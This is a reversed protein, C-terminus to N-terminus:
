TKSGFSRIELQEGLNPESLRFPPTIGGSKSTNISKTPKWEKFEKPNFEEFEFTSYPNKEGKLEEYAKSHAQYLHEAKVSYYGVKEERVKIHFTKM